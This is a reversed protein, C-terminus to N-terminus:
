EPIRVACQGRTLGGSCSKPAVMASAVGVGPDGEALEEGGMYGSFFVMVVAVDSAAAM